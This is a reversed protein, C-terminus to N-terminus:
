NYFGSGIIYDGVRKIYSTKHEVKNDTRNLWVYDVSGVGKGKALKIMEQVIPKGEADKLQSADTGTLGPNAGSARYKGDLDFVFVYNEGRVWPGKPDNFAALSKEPGEKKFYAVADNVLKKAQTAKTKEAAAPKAADAALVPQATLVALGLLAAASLSRFM